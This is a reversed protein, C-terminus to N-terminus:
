TAGLPALTAVSAQAAPSAATVVTQQPKRVEDGLPNDSHRCSGEFFAGNEVAFTEHLIDGEVHCTATLLVKRAYIRGVVKGRV